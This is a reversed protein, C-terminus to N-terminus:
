KLLSKVKEMNALAHRNRGAEWKGDKLVEFMPIGGKACVTRSNGYQYALKWRTTYISANKM